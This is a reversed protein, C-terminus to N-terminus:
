HLRRRWADILPPAALSLATAAWLLAQHNRWGEVAAVAVAGIALVGALWAEEPAHGDDPGHRSFWALVVFLVAPVIFAAVPFGRYRGDFALALTVVAAAVMATARLLGVAMAADLPERARGVIWALARDFTAPHGGAGDVIRRSVTWAIGATLAIGAMAVTWELATRASEVAAGWQLVAAAGFLHAGLGVALWRGFAPMGGGKISLGAMLALALGAAVALRLRWDPIEAVPGRWPFKRTRDEAFVGWYGGVTGEQARKWPQDFAEILNYDLGPTAAAQVSFGRLVQAQEVRGPRSGERMRGASPWGVEGIFVDKGPFKATVHKWIDVIYGPSTDAPIPRDEWYPLIHVTVFDVAGALGANQLWFEWVDAYTVPVGARRRVEALYRAMSEPSQERRLLVENGVIVARVTDKYKRALEIAREIQVRNDADKRGIWIGLLVKLGAKAAAEPVADLGQDVAYTRVCGVHGALLKMDAEIWAKPIVIGDEHPSLAGRFPTYSVCPIKGGAGDVVIVPRGAQWWFAFAPVLGILFAVVAIPRIM